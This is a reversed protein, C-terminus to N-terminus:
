QTLHQHYREIIALFEDPHFGLHDQFNTLGILGGDMSEIGALMAANALKVGGGYIVRLEPDFTKVLRIVKEIYAQDAPQKGPGISWLPEYGIIVHQHDVGALGISLQQLM